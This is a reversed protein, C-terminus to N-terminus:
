AFETKPQNGRDPPRSTPSDNSCNTKTSSPAPAFSPSWTQRTSPDSGPRPPTSSSTPSPWGLRPALWGKTRLGVTAFTSEIPNAIRLHIWREAPCKYFERLADLDDTIKAVANRYKAAYDLEFTKVAAQTTDIDEANCVDRLTTSASPHASKALAALVNAQKHWLLAARPNRTAGAALRGLVAPAGDGVALVPATM